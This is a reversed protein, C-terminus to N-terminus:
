GPLGMCAPLGALLVRATESGIPGICCWGATALADLWTSGELAAQLGPVQLGPVDVHALARLRAVVVGYAPVTVVVAGLLGAVLDDAMVGVGGEFKEEAWKVPGPKRIDFWRFAVFATVVLLWWADIGGGPLSGLGAVRIQGLPLGHLVVVPALAILQGAVEDIVIRGDDPKGFWAEVAGSAWIGAVTVVLVTLVYLPLGLRHLAAVFALVALLAGWTGPAWPGFGV